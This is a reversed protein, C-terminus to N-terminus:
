ITKENAKRHYEGENFLPLIDWTAAKIKNLKRLTDLDKKPISKRGEEEYKKRLSLYEEIDLVYVEQKRGLRYNILIYSMGGNRHMDLLALVQHAEVRAFPFSANIRTSKCEIAIPIGKYVALFDYVGDAKFSTYQAVPLKRIHMGLEIGSARVEREFLFGCANSKRM